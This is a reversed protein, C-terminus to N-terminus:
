AFAFHRGARELARLGAAFRLRPLAPRRHLRRAVAAVALGARRLARFGRDRHRGRALPQGRCLRAVACVDQTRSIAPHLAAGRHRPRSRAVPRDAAGLDLCLCLHRIRVHGDLARVAGALWLRAHRRRRPDPVGHRGSAAAPSRRRAASEPAVMAAVSRGAVVPRIRDSGVFVEARSRVPLRLLSGNVNLESLPAFAM